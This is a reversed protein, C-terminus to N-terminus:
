WDSRKLDVKDARRDAKVKDFRNRIQHAPMNVVAAVEEVSTRTNDLLWLAQRLREERSTPHGHRTNAEMTLATVHHSGPRAKVVYAGFTELGAAHAAEYRHNGDINVGASTVGARAVVIAPFKDGRLMAARYEEVTSADVGEGLRAQNHLSKERDVDALAFAPVYQWTLGKDDLWSEIDPRRDGNVATSSRAAKAM